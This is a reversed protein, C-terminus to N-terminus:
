VDTENGFLSLQTVNAAAGLRVGCGLLRVPQRGRQFGTDLLKEFQALLPTTGVCEVTTQQFDAFRIKVYLKQVL